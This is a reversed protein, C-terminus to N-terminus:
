KTVIRSEKFEAEKLASLANSILETHNIISSHFSASGIIIPINIQRLVERRIRDSVAFAEKQGIRHVLLYFKEDKMAVLDEKRTQFNLVLGLRELLSPDKIEVDIKVILISFVDNLMRAREIERRVAEEFYYYNFLSTVKDVILLRDIEGSLNFNEIILSTISAIITSFRQEELSFKREKKWGGILVGIREGKIILPFIILSVIGMRQYPILSERKERGINGLVLPKGNEMIENMCEKTKESEGIINDGAIVRLRRKERRAILSIETKLYSSFVSIISSFAEGLNQTRDVKLSINYLQELEKREEEIREQRKRMEEQLMAARKTEYEVERQAFRVERAIYSSITWIGFFIPIRILFFVWEGKNLLFILLYLLSIGFTLGFSTIPRYYCASFIIPFLYFLFFPSEIIGTGSIISSVFVVDLTSEAYAINEWEKKLILIRAIINYLVLVIIPLFLNPKNTWNPYKIQLVLITLVLVFWRIRNAIIFIKSPFKIIKEM